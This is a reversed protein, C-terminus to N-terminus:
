NELTKLYDMFEAEDMVPINLENAKKLKSGAGPGAVVRTTKKSVSGAVKAGLALLRESAEDRSLAELKGTVVWTQGALVADTSDQQQVPWQIGLDLLAQVEDRNHTEAFFAAVNRAAVPGVDDVGQLDEESAHMLENLDAFHNALNRATTEGVERIGLSFLFRPLTTQKSHELAELLNNASKEAMRELNVLQEFTLRFLDSFHNVLKLDVLTDILKDGLGEIDMAKRSVFHKLGEKRQADCFLGATCRLAAEGEVRLVDSGCVPCATPIEIVQREDDDAQHAVKVIQPIVDGARRIIVQDNIALGLRTIEDLNHLTANSVTVGGVFVPELRAVPTIAGTRGVQYDVALLRTQEEQAPFKHAIAWRPARSVFGLRKQLAMDDIKFVVGDIDYDLGDRKNLMQQFYDLCGDVGTVQRMESNIKLGWQQLQKLLAYQSDPVTGQEVRGVSYCCFELPRQATIRSDLQRLAGSAANRPNMYTKEENSRFRENMAEFGSRTMYVEGRVELIAPYGNGRLRLPINRIAKANATINEGTTGDGRTAARVLVGNEYLLSIALGDLKPECCFEFDDQQRLRDQIRRVFDHMDQEGFANDLSLMPVEHVVTEFGDAPQGSVRQSPSDPTVWEPHESEIKRLQQMLRDYEADTVTSENLVYYEYNHREIMQRLQQLQQYDAQNM